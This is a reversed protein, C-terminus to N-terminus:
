DTFSISVDETLYLMYYLYTQINAGTTVNNGICTKLGNGTVGDFDNTSFATFIVCVVNTVTYAIKDQHVTIPTGDITIGTVGDFVINHWGFVNNYTGLIMLSYSGSSVSTSIYHSFSHGGTIGGGRIGGGGGQPNAWEPFSAGMTLVQGQTGKPLRYPIGYISGAIMDGPTTMPNTMGTPNKWEVNTADSNMTLVQGATGKAKGEIVPAVSGPVYKGVMVLGAAVGSNITPQFSETNWTDADTLTWMDYYLQYTTGDLRYSYFNMIGVADDLYGFVAFETGNVAVVLKDASLAEVAELFTTEGYVAKFLQEESGSVEDEILTITDDEEVFFDYTSLEGDVAVSYGTLRYDSGTKVVKVFMDSFEVGNITVGSLLIVKRKNEAISNHLSSVVVGESTINFDKLDIVQYGGKKM